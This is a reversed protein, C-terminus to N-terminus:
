SSLFGDRGEGEEEGDVAVLRRREEDQVLNVGCQVVCVNALDGGVDLALLAGHVDHDDRELLLEVRVRIGEDPDGGVGLLHPLRPGEDGLNQSEIEGGPGFM